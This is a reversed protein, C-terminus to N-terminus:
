APPKGGRVILVAGALIAVGSIWPAVSVEKKETAQIKLSGFQAVNETKKYPIGGWILGAFGLAM